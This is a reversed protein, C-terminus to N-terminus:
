RLGPAISFTEVRGVKQLAAQVDPRAVVTNWRDHITKEMPTMIIDAYHQMDVLADNRWEPDELRDILLAAAEDLNGRLLLADQLTDPEEARHARLYAMAASAAPEDHRDVAIRLKVGELQMRGIPSLDGLQIIATAANDPQGLEAYLEGLNISQSVNIGGHEPLRAALVETAIAKDWQAQRKFARSRNDLVWNYRDSFDTYAKAGERKETRAVVADSISLVKPYQGTLLFLEQLDTIPQLQDPHAAMRARTATIEAAVLRDVDFAGRHPLTIADFRKDVQMSLAVQGSTIRLAVKTARAVEGRQLHKLALDRWLNSPEVGEIQWGADFLEDLMLRDTEDEHALKLQYHLQMVAGPVVDGLKAPWRQTFMTLSYAADGFNKIAFASSFRTLWAVNDAEPFRTAQVALGHAKDYKGTEWAILSAMFITEHRVEEPLGAFGQAHLAKDLEPGADNNNHRVDEFARQVLEMADTVAASPGDKVAQTPPVTAHAACAILLLMAAAAVLPRTKM